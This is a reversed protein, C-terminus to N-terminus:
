GRPRVLWNRRTAPRGAKSGTPDGTTDGGRATEGNRTTTGTAELVRPRVPWLAAVAIAFTGVITLVSHFVFDILYSGESVERGDILVFVIDERFVATLGAVDTGVTVAALGINDWLLGGLTFTSFGILLTGGVAIAIPLSGQRGPLRWLTARLVVLATGVAILTRTAARYGDALRPDGVPKPQYDFLLRWSAVVLVLVAVGLTGLVIMRLWRMFDPKDQLRRNRVM